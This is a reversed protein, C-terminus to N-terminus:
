IIQDGNGISREGTIPVIGDIHSPSQDTNSHLETICVQINRKM